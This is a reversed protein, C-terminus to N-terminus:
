FCYSFPWCKTLAYTKVNGRRVSLGRYGDRNPRTLFLMSNSVSISVCNLTYPYDFFILYRYWFKSKLWTSISFRCVSSKTDKDFNCGFKSKSNKSPESVSNSLSDEDEPPPPPPPLITQQESSSPLPPASESSHRRRSISSEFNQQPHAFDLDMPDNSQDDLNVEQAAAAHSSSDKFNFTIISILM